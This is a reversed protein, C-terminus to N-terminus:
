TINKAWSPLPLAAPFWEADNGPNSKTRPQQSSSGPSTKESEKTEDTASSPAEDKPPVPEFPEVAGGEVHATVSLDFCRAAADEDAKEVSPASGGCDNDTASPRGSAPITHDVIPFNVDWLDEDSDTSSKQQRADCKSDANTAANTGEM